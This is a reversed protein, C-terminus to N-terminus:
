AYALAKRGASLKAAVCARLPISPVLLRGL